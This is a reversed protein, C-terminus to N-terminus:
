AEVLAKLHPPGYYHDVFPQNTRSLHRDIRLAITIYDEVWPHIPM